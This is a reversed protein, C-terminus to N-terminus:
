MLTCLSHGTRRHGSSEPDRDGRRRRRRPGRGRHRPSRADEGESMRERTRECEQSAMPHNALSLDQNTNKHVTKRSRPFQPTSAAVSPVTLSVEEEYVDNIDSAALGSRRSTPTSTRSPIIDSGEGPDLETRGRTHLLSRSRVMQRSARRRTGDSLSNSRFSRNVDKGRGSEIEDNALEEEGCFSLTVAGVAELMVRAHRYGKPAKHASMVQFKQLLDVFDGEGVVARHKEEVEEVARVLQEVVEEEAEQSKQLAEGQKVLTQLEQNHHHLRRHTQQAHTLSDLVRGHAHRLLGCLWRYVEVQRKYEKTRGDTWRKAEGARELLEEQLLRLKEPFPRLNHDTCEPAAVRRCSECWLVLRPLSPARLLGWLYFNTQLTAPDQVPTSTRCLPCRM